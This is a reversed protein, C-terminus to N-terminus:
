YNARPAKCGRLEVSKQNKGIITIMLRDRALSFAMDAPVIVESAAILQGDLEETTAQQLWAERIGAEIVVADYDGFGAEEIEHLSLHAEVMAGDPTPTIICSYTNINQENGKAPQKKLAALIAKDAKNSQSLTAELTFSVPICIFECVGIDATLHLKVPLAPDIAEVHLPLFMEDHYGISVAGAAFFVEPTPWAVKISKVNQSGEWNLNPPIGADGPIRWYTKWGSALRVELASQYQGPTEQWGPLLAAEYLDDPIETGYSQAVGLQASVM